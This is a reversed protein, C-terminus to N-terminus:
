IARGLMGNLISQATQRIGSLDKSCEAPLALKHLSSFSGLGRPLCHAFEAWHSRYSLSLGKNNTFCDKEMLGCHDFGAHHTALPNLNKSLAGKLFPTPSFPLGIPRFM